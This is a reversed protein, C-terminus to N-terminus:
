GGILTGIKKKLIVKKISDKLSLDFIIVPLSAEKCLVISTLDMVKLGKAIYEDYSIKKFKVASTDKKPDKDFVGEVKTAKLLVEAGMEIARLAAASDTSFYPHGTGACFIVIQGDNLLFHAREYSYNEVFSCDISSLITSKCSLRSLEKKFSLSNIVTALMGMQDAVVRESKPFNCGRLINGGGIVLGIQCGKKQFDKLVLAVEEERQFLVEGSVKLLIRNYM